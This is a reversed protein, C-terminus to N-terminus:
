EIRHSFVQKHIPNLPFFTDQAPSEIVGPALNNSVEPASNAHVGIIEHPQIFTLIKIKEQIGGVPIKYFSIVLGMGLGEGLPTKKYFVGIPV